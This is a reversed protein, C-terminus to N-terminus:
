CGNLFQESPLLATLVELLSGPVVGLGVGFGQQWCSQEVGDRSRSSTRGRQLAPRSGLISGPWKAGLGTAM